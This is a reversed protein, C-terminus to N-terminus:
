FFYFPFIFAFLLISISKTYYRTVGRFQSTRQGFTDISKRPVPEKAQQSKGVARKRSDAAVQVMAPVAFGGCGNQSSSSPSMTLSLSQFNCGNPESTPSSSSKEHHHHDDAAGFPLTQAGLWSKAYMANNPILAQPPNDNYHTTNYSHVLLPSPYSSTTNNDSHHRALEIDSENTSNFSPALNVNIEYNNQHDEQQNQCYVKNTEDPPSSPYCCGLFDELKPGQDENPNASTPPGMGNEYRWDKM